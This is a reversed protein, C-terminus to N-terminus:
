LHEILLKGAFATKILFIDGYSIKLDFSVKLPINNIYALILRIVGGHTVVAVKAFPQLLLEQWFSLVREQMQVMSEGEPPPTNVFDEMWTNLAKPEVTDWSKGEWQGFNVEYLREDTKFELAMSGALRTCRASPSTYVVDLDSPLKQRITNLEQNFTDALPVDTRGYIFGKPIAPTTHRILYIKM